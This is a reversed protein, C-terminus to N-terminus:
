GQQKVRAGIIGYKDVIIRVNGITEDPDDYPRDAIRAELSELLTEICSKIVETPSAGRRETDTSDTSM